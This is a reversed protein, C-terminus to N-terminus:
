DGAPPRVAVIPSTQRSRSRNVFHQQVLQEIFGVEVALWRLGGAAFLKAALKHVVQEAVVPRESVQDGGRSRQRRSCDGARDVPKDAAPNWGKCGGLLGACLLIVFIARSSM